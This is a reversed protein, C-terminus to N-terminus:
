VKTGCMHCFRSKEILGVGCARCFITINKSSTDKNRNMIVAFSATAEECIYLAKKYKESDKRVEENILQINILPNNIDNITIKLKMEKTIIKTRKEGSIAGVLAGMGGFAIGGILAQALGGSTLSDGDEYIDFDLIEDFDLVRRGFSNDFLLILRKTDDIEIVNGIKRTPNFEIGEYKLNTKNRLHTKLEEISYQHISKQLSRDCLKICESCIFGDKTKFNLLGLKKNCIDCIKNFM